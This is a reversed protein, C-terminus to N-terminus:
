IMLGDDYTDCNDDCVYWGTTGDKKMIPLILM